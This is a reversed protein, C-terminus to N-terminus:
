FRTIILGGFNGNYKNKVAVDYDFYDTMIDSNNKYGALKEIEHKLTVFLNADECKVSVRLWDKATISVDSKKFGLKVALEKAQQKFTALEM